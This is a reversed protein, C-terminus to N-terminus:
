RSHSQMLPPQITYCNTTTKPTPYLPRYHAWDETHRDVLVVGTQHQRNSGAVRTSRLSSSIHNLSPSIHRTSSIHRALNTLRWSTWWSVGGWNSTTKYSQHIFAAAPIASSPYNIHTKTNQQQWTNRSQNSSIAIIHQVAIISHPKTWVKSLSFGPCWWVSNQQLHKTTVQARRINLNTNTRM